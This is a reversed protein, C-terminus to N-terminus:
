LGLRRASQFKAPYKGSRVFEQDAVGIVYNDFNHFPNRYHWKLV